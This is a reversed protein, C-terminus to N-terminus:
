EKMLDFPLGPPIPSSDPTQRFAFEEKKIRMQKRFCAPSMHYTNQFVHYFHSLNEFGADESIQIIKCDSYLLGSVAYDLRIDNVLRTPTKGLYKQCCRSLHEPTKGCLRYMAPLGETFNEKKLMELTLWQLWKPPHTTLQDPQLTLFRSLLQFITIRFYLESNEQLMSQTVVLQELQGIVNKLDNTSLLICAPLPPTLFLADFDKGLYHAIEAFMEKPLIVNIIRFDPSIRTYCHIDDPRVCCFSGPELSHTMENVKHLGTGSVVLFLEYYNHCHVRQLQIPNSIYSAYGHGPMQLIQEGHLRPIMSMLYQGGEKQITREDAGNAISM